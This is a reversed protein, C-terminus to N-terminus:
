CGVINWLAEKRMTCAVPLVCLLLTCEGVRPYHHVRGLHNQPPNTRLPAPRDCVTVYVPFTIIDRFHM